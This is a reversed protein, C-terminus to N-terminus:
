THCTHRCLGWTFFINWLKCFWVGYLVWTPHNRFFEGPDPFYIVLIREALYKLPIFVTLDLNCFTSSNEVYSYLLHIGFFYNCAEVLVIQEEQILIFRGQGTCAAGAKSYKGRAAGPTCTHIWLLIWVVTCRRSSLFDALIWSTIMGIGLSIGTWCHVDLNIETHLETVATRVKLLRM